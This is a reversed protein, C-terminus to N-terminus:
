KPTMRTMRERERVSSRPVRVIAKGFAHSTVKRPIGACNASAVGAHLKLHFNAVRSTSAGGECVGKAALMLTV